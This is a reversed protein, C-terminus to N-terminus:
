AVPRAASACCAAGRTARCGLVALGGGLIPGIVYLWLADWEGAAVAPGLSRAPNMSAGSIPGGFLSGLAVTGGIALGALARGQTPGSTVGLIVFVLFFTLVAELVFTLAWPGVPLTAGFPAAEPFLVRLLGSALVAAACQTALYAGVRSGPLRGARWLALTVAPNFHAGSVDGVAYIMAMVVFGFTLAIGVHGVTGGTMADVVMAGTGAFVLAFTGIGEAALDRM